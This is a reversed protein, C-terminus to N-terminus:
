RQRARRPVLLIWEAVRALVDGFLHEPEIFAKIYRQCEPLLECSFRQRVVFNIDIGRFADQLQRLAIAPAEIGACDTGMHILVTPGLRAIDPRLARALCELPRAVVRQVNPPLSVPAAASASSAPLVLNGLAACLVVGAVVVHMTNGLRAAWERRRMIDLVEPHFQFGFFPALDKPALIRNFGLSFISSNEALTPLCGDWRLQCMHLNQSTDFVVLRPDVEPNCEVVRAVVNVRNRTSATFYPVDHTATYPAADTEWAVRRERLYKMHRKRWRCPEEHGDPHAKCLACLCPHLSCSAMPDVACTCTQTAVAPTPGEPPQLVPLAPPPRAMPATLSAARCEPLAATGLKVLAPLPIACSFVPVPASCLTRPLPAAALRLSSSGSSVSPAHTDGRDPLPLRPRSAGTGLDPLPVSAARKM